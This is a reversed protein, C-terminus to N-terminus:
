LPSGKPTGTEERWKQPIATKNHLMHVRHLLLLPPSKKQSIKATLSIGDNLLFLGKIRSLIIFRRILINNTCNEGEWQSAFQVKVKKMWKGYLILSWVWQIRKMYFPSGLLLLYVQVKIYVQHIFNKVPRLKETDRYIWHSTVLDCRSLQCHVCAVSSFIKREQNVGLSRNESKEAAFFFISFGRFDICGEFYVFPFM